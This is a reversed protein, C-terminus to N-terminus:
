SDFIIRGEKRAHAEPAQGRIHGLICIGVGTYADDLGWKKLYARGEETQFMERGRHIWCSGLALAAAANMLNGMVLSADELWTPAETSALVVIAMPAGYFPHADPAGLVQANMKELHRLTLPDEVVVMVVKQNDRGTPAYLGAELIEELLARAVPREEYARVSRRKKLVQLTDNM